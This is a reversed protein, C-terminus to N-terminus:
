NHSGLTGAQLRVSDACRRMAAIAEPGGPAQLDVVAESDFSPAQGPWEDLLDFHLTMLSGTQMASALQAYLAPFPGDLDDALVAYDDAFLLAVPYIRWDIAIAAHPIAKLPQLQLYRPQLPGDDSLYLQLQLIRGGWAEECALVVADINTNTATPVVAAYRPDDTHQEITWQPPNAGADAAQLEATWAALMSMVVLLM